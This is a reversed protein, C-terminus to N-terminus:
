SGKRQKTRQAQRELWRDVRQKKDVVAIVLGLPWGLVVIPVSKIRDAQSLGQFMKDETMWALVTVGIGIWAGALFKIM